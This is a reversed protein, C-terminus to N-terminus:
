EEAHDVEQLGGILTDDTEGSYIAQLCICMELAVVVGINTVDSVVGLKTHLRESCPNEDLHSVTLDKRYDDSAPTDRNGTTKTAGAAICAEEGRAEEEAGELGCDDREERHDCNGKVSAGFLGEADSAPVAAVTQASQDTGRDDIAKAADVGVGKVAVLDDVEEKTEHGDDDAEGSVPPCVVAGTLGAVERGLVAELGDVTELGVLLTDNRVLEVPGM